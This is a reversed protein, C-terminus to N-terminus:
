MSSNSPREWPEIAGPASSFLPHTRLPLHGSDVLQSLHDPSRETLKKELHSWEYELQGETVHLPEAGAPWTRVIKTADFRYGRESAEEVLATLFSGLAAVPDETAKFRQLQPHNKYGKTEGLLVKQALLAERWSAILGQRDLYSPHLSWLRM